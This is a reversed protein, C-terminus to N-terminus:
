VKKGSFGMNSAASVDNTSRGKPASRVDFINAASVRKESVIKPADQVCIQAKRVNRDPRMTLWLVIM